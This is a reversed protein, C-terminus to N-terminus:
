RIFTTYLFYFTMLNFLLLTCLGTIVTVKENNTGNNDGSGNDNGSKEQKAAYKAMAMM